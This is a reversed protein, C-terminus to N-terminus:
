LQELYLVGSITVAESPTTMLQIAGFGDGEDFYLYEEPTPAYEWGVRNNFGDAHLLDRTGGSIKTTDNARLNTTPITTTVKSRAKKGTPNSGGSGVTTNGRCIEVGWMQEKADGADAAIGTNRLICKLLRLPADDLAKWSFFDQQASVAVLSFSVTFITSM